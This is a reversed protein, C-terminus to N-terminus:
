NKNDYYRLIDLANNHVDEEHHNKIIDLFEKDYGYKELINRGIEGHNYFCDVKKNSKLKKLRGATVKNLIVLIGKDLISLKIQSKGIDHLLAAKIIMQEEDYTFNKLDINDYAIENKRDKFLKKVDKAVNISHKQEYVPLKNFLEIENESLQEKIFKRDDDNLKSTISWLFQKIRYFM